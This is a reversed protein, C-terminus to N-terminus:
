LGAGSREKGRAYCACCRIGRVSPFGEKVFGNISARCAGGPEGIRWAGIHDLGTRDNRRRQDRTQARVKGTLDGRLHRGIDIVARGTAEQQDRLARAEDTFVIAADSEAM